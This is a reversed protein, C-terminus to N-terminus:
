LVPFLRRGQLIYEFQQVHFVFAIEIYKDEVVEEPYPFM